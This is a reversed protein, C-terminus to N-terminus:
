VLPRSAPPLPSNNGDTRTHDSASSIIDCNCSISYMSSREVFQSYLIPHAHRLRRLIAPGTDFEVSVILALELAIREDNCAKQLPTPAGSLPHRMAQNVSVLIIANPYRLM